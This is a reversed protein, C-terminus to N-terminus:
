KDDTMEATHYTKETKRHHQQLRLATHQKLKLLPFGRKGKIFIFMLCILWLSMLLM